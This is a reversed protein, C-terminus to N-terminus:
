NDPMSERGRSGNNEEDWLECRTFVALGIAPAYYSALLEVPSGDTVVGFYPSTEAFAWVTWGWSVFGGRRCRRVEQISHAAAWKRVQGLARRRALADGCILLIVFGAVVVMAIWWSPALIAAAFGIGLTGLFPQAFGYHIV